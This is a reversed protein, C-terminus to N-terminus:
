FEDGFFSLVDSGSAQSVAPAIALLGTALVVSLVTRGTWRSRFDRRSLVCTDRTM